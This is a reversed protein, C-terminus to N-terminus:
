EPTYFVMGVGMAELGQEAWYEMIASDQELVAFLAPIAREDGIQALARTAELRARQSGKELVELLAEVAPTGISVLTDAVLHSCLYDGDDLFGVLIPVARADAHNRLGLAACQRVSADADELKKVLLDVMKPDPFAVLARTAWWRVDVEPSVLQNEVHKRITEQDRNPLAAIAEVAAEAEEDDGSFLDSLLKESRRM